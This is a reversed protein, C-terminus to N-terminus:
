HIGSINKIDMFDILSIVSIVCAQSMFLFGFRKYSSSLWEQFFFFLDTSDIQITSSSPVPSAYSTQLLGLLLCPYIIQPPIYIWGNHRNVRTKKGLKRESLGCRSRGKLSGAAQLLRSVAGAFACKFKGWWCCRWMAWCWKYAKWVEDECLFFLGCSEDKKQERDPLDVELEDSSDQWKRSTQRAMSEEPGCDKRPTPPNADDCCANVFAPLCVYM